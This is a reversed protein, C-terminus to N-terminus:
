RFATLSAGTWRWLEDRSVRLAAVVPAVCKISDYWRREAISSPSGRQASLCPNAVLVQIDPNFRRFHTFAGDMYMRAGEPNSADNTMTRELFDILRPMARHHVAYCHTCGFPGTYPVLGPPLNNIESSLTHGLHCMGWKYKSLTAVLEAQQKIMKRSFIADDELILVSELGNRMADKLIQLHKLFNSYVGISPFGNASTPNPHEQIIVKPHDISIGIRQLEKVLPAYRDIRERLHIVSVGGFYDILSTAPGAGETHKKLVPSSHRYPHLTETMKFERARGSERCGGGIRRSPRACRLASGGVFTVM